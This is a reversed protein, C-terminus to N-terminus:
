VDSFSNGKEYDAKSKKVIDKLTANHKPGTKNAQTNDDQNGQDNDTQILIKNNALVSKLFDGPTIKQHSPSLLNTGDVNRLDLKGYDDLYLEADTNSLERDVLKKIVDAKVAPPLIDYATQYATLLGALEFKATVDLVRKDSDIRIKDIHDELTKVKFKLDAIEQDKESVNNEM